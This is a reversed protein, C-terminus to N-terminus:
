LINPCLSQILMNLEKLKVPKSIYETAGANLCKERDGPMALATMAVIPIHNGGLQRIQQIAELGNMVPMQIDMLIIDPHHTQNMDVAEQGNEAVILRYGHAKLYSSITEINAQHDEALLILRSRMSVEESKLELNLPNQAIPKPTIRPSEDCPLAVTFQSGRGFESSVEVTGGHLEVIRQVLALGLGTGEYKRNLSSDIQVFRQFLKDLHEPAIGIGTDIVSIRVSSQNTSKVPPEHTVTLSVSGNEPTFKVANNLLNILVQLIRREDLMLNPLNPAIEASIQIQKQSAQPQIFAISSQCLQSIATSTYSLKLYGSEIMSLDIIDNILSLLHNGSSEITQLADRQENNIEGFMEEQLIETMGLVANLPTRLEHSMTALFEDKLRNARTLEENTSEIKQLQQSLQQDRSTLQEAMSNFGEALIGVEDQADVAIRIALNGTALEEAAKTLRKIRRSLSQTIQFGGITVAVILISGLAGFSGVVIWLRQGAQEIEQTSKLVAIKLTAQDFSPLEITKILYESGRVMIKTPPNDAEPFQWARDRDLPLTAATIRDRKFTVLEISTDGRISQLLTDDIAIGDVLGALVKQSSKISILVVMTTPSGDKGFAFGSLELGTKAAINIATDELTIQGLTGLQSSVLIQGDADIIRLLDLKLAAQLPLVKRLLLDRDGAEVANIVEKEESVLRTKLKLTEQRQKLSEQLLGGLDIIEKQASQELNNRAFYGFGVTGATWLSLFALLLPSLLKLSVPLRTYRAKIAM